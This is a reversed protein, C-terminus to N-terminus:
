TGPYDRDDNHPLGTLLKSFVIEVVGTPKGPHVPSHFYSNSSFFIWQLFHCIKTTFNDAM